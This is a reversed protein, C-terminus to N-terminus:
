FIVEKSHPKPKFVSHLGPLYETCPVTPSSIEYFDGGAVIKDCKYVFLILFNHFLMNNQRTLAVHGRCLTQKNLIATYHIKLPKKGNKFINLCSRSIILYTPLPIEYISTLM